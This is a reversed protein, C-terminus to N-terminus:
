SGTDYLERGVHKQNEVYTKLSENFRNFKAMGETLKKWLLPILIGTCHWRQILRTNGCGLARLEFDHVMHILFPHVLCRSFVFMQEDAVKEVYADIFHEAKRFKFAVTGGTHFDGTVQTITPNWDGYNEFDVLASWVADKPAAIDIQIEFHRM